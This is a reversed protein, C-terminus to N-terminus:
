KAWHPWIDREPGAGTTVPVLNTGNADMKYLRLSGAANMFAIETGDWSWTPYNQDSAVGLLIAYGTGDANVMGIDYNAGVVGFTLTSGDPSWSPRDAIVGPPTIQIGTPLNVQQVAIAGAGGLYAIRSGDPSWTPYLASHLTGPDVHYLRRPNSGDANMIWIGNDVYAIMSGDPSWAPQAGAILMVDNSGDANRTHVTWDTSGATSRHEYVLRTGDPSWSAYAQFGAGTILPSLNSGDAHVSYVDYENTNSGTGDDQFRTFVIENTRAGPQYNCTVTITVPPGAIVDITVPRPNAEAMSCNPAIGSVVMSYSGVPIQGFITLGTGVVDRNAGGDLSIQYGNPDLTLGQTLATIELNSTSPCDISFIEGATDGATVVPQRSPTGSLTCNPELGSIDLTHVGPPLGSFFVSDNLNLHHGPSDGDLSLVYGDPDPSPGTTVTTVKITGTVPTCVFDFQVLTNGGPTVAFNRTLGNLETCNAAVGSMTVTHPGLPLTFSAEFGPGGGLTVGADIQYNMFHDVDTGTATIKLTLLGSTHLCTVAFSTETTQDAVVTVTRLRPPAVSCNPAVNVLGVTFPGPELDPITVSANSGVGANVSGELLVNYGDGDIEDGGTVTTVKLQGPGPEDPTPESGSSCAITTLAFLAAFVQPPAFSSSM